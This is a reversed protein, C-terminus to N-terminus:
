ANTTSPKRIRIKGGLWVCPLATVVLAIPYWHASLNWGVITGIIAMLTGISGLIVVHRQPRSPAFAATIYGGLVTYVCRYVLALMLMWPVFLGQDPRPFVALSELMMDTGVSLIFVALFGAAVAGISKLKNM